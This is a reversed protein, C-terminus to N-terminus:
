VTLRPEDSQSAEASSIPRRSLNRIFYPLDSFEDGFVIPITHSKQQYNPDHKSVWAAADDTRMLVFQRFDADRLQTDAWRLLRGFNPDSLGQGFGVYVLTRKQLHLQRLLEQVQSANIVHDYSSDGFVLSEPQDYRGHVHLTIPHGDLIKMVPLEGDTWVVTARGEIHDLLGDYNCTIIPLNWSGIAEILETNSARMCGFESMFFNAFQEEPMLSQILSAARVPDDDGHLVNMVYSQKDPDLAAVARRILEVWTPAKECSALSVGAGCVFVATRDHLANKLLTEPGKRWFPDLFLAPAKAALPTMPCTSIRDVFRPYRIQWADREHESPTMQYQDVMKALEHLIVAPSDRHRRSRKISINGEHYAQNVSVAETIRLTPPEFVRSYREEMSINIYKQHLSMLLAMQLSDPPPLPVVLRFKEFTNGSSMLYRVIQGFIGGTEYQLERMLDPQSYKEMTGSPIVGNRHLLQLFARVEEPNTLSGLRLLEFKKYDLGRPYHQYKDSDVDDVVLPSLFQSEGTLFMVASCPFACIHYIERVAAVSKDDPGADIKWMLEASDLFGLAVFDDSHMMGRVPDSVDLRKGTRFEYATRYLESPLLTSDRCDHYFPIVNPCLLASVTAVLRMTFTKGTGPADSVVACTGGIGMFGQSKSVVGRMMRRITATRRDTWLYQGERLSLPHSNPLSALFEAAVKTYKIVSDLQLFQQGKEDEEYELMERMETFKKLLPEAWEKEM